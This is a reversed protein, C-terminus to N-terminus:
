PGARPGTSRAPTPKGGTMGAFSAAAPSAAVKGGQQQGAGGRGRAAVAAQGLRAALAGGVVGVELSGLFARQGGGLM